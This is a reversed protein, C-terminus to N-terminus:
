PADRVAAVDALCNADFSLTTNGTQLLDDLVRTILGDGEYAWYMICDPDSDHGPHQPDEHPTIMPLGIDVLGLVHGIEHLWIVLEADQCVQNGLAPLSAAVCLEEVTQKFVVLHQQAWAIGLVTGGSPGSDYAGDVFLVHMKTTGAPVSLDDTAAALVQLEAFTWRHDTGRSAITGDLVVEVGQPKDVLAALRTEVDDVNASRPEFGAVRDLELVLRGFGDSRLYDRSRQTAIVVDPGPGTGGGGGGGGCAVLLATLALLAARPPAPFAM